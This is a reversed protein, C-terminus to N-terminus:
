GSPTGPEANELETDPRSAAARLYWALQQGIGLGELPRAAKLPITLHEAYRDGAHLSFDIAELDGCTERLKHWCATRGNAGNM